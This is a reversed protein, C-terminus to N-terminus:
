RALMSCLTQLRPLASTSKKSPDNKYVIFTYGNYKNLGDETGFWMFGRSDQLICLVNSQSLGDDTQLHDFKLYKSQSLGFFPIVLLLFLYCYPKM